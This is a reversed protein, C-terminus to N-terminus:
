KFDVIKGSTVIVNIGVVRAMKVVRICEVRWFPCQYVFSDFYSM